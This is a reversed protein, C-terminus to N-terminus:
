IIIHFIYALISSRLTNFVTKKQLIYYLTTVASNFRPIPVVPIYVNVAICETVTIIATLVRFYLTM